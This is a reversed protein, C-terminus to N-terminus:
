TWKAGRYPLRNSNFKSAISLQPYFIISPSQYDSFTRKASTLLFKPNVIFNFGPAMGALNQGQSGSLPNVEAFKLNVKATM